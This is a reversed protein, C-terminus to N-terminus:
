SVSNHSGSGKAQDNKLFSIRFQTGEESTIEIKSDLQESYSYVLTTGLTPSSALDFDSPLGIGDDKITLTVEEEAVNLSLDIVGKSRGEFAFQYANSILENVILACPVAQNLNLRLPELDTCIEIQKGTDRKNLRVSEVFNELYEDFRVNQFDQEKYMEEHILAMSNIRTYNANLAKQVEKSASKMEELQLISSIVALNNKVRHHVEAMLVNKEDLIKELRNQYTIEESVNRASMFWKGFQKNVTIELFVQRGENDSLHALPKIKGQAGSENWDIVTNLFSEDPFLDYLSLQEEHGSDFGFFDVVKDSFREVFTSEPDVILMMDVTSELFSTITELEETKKKLQLRAEVERTLTELAKLQSESLEKAAVDLVCVTGLNTDKEDKINFGAYFRIGPDDQVFPFHKFREDEAANLVVMSRDQEITHNCFSIERPLERMPIGFKAKSWLRDRDLFNIQAFPVDCIHAALAALNDFEEEEPTDLIHQEYVAKLRYEEQLDVTDIMDM